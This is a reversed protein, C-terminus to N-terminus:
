RVGGLAEPPERPPAGPQKTFTFTGAFTIRSGADERIERYTGRLGDGTIQATLEFSGSTDFEDDESSCRLQAAAVDLTCPFNFFPYDAVNEGLKIYLRPRAADGTEEFYPEAYLALQRPLTESSPSTQTLTGEYWGILPFGFETCLVDSLLELRLEGNPEGAGSLTLEANGLATVELTEGPAVQRKTLPPAFSSTPDASLTLAADTYADWFLTVTEGQCAYALYGPSGLGNLTEVNLFLPPRSSSALLSAVGLTFVTTFLLARTMHKM